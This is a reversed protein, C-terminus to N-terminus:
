RGATGTRFLRGLEVTLQPVAVPALAAGAEAIVATRYRAGDPERFVEIRQAAVDVIWYELVGAEAYVAAKARDLELSSRAVEVVLSATSPHRRAADELPQPCVVLDPEPESRALTLPLQCRVAWEDGLARFVKQLASVVRAHDSSHPSMAVIVGEVLEVREGVSFVGGDIMRHYADVSIPFRAAAALAGVDTM